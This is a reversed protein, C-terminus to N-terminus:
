RISYSAQIRVLGGVNPTIITNRRYILKQRLFTMRFSLNLKLNCIIKGLKDNNIVNECYKNKINKIYKTTCIILIIFISFLNFCYKLTFFFTFNIARINNRHSANEARTTIFVNLISSSYLIHKSRSQKFTRQLLFSVLM